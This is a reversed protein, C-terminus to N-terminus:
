SGAGRGFDLIGLAASVVVDLTAVLAVVVAGLTTVFVMAAEQQM